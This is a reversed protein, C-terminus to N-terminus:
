IFRVYPIDNYEYDSEDTSEIMSRTNSTISLKSQICSQKLRNKALIKPKKQIIKSKNSIKVPKSKPILNKQKAGKM